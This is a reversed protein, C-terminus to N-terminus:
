RSVELLYSYYELAELGAVWFFATSIFFHKLAMSPLCTRLDVSIYEM